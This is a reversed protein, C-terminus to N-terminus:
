SARLAARIFFCYVAFRGEAFICFPRKKGESAALGSLAPPLATKKPAAM